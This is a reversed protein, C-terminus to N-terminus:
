KSLKESIRMGAWGYLWGFAVGAFVDTPYHMGNHLRSWMMIIVALGVFVRSKRYYYAIPLLFAMLATVHDSPFSSDTSRDGVPTVQSPYAHYPRERDWLSEALVGKILFVNMFLFIVLSVVIALVIKKGKKKDFYLIALCILVVLAYLMPKWSILESIKDVITGQGLGNFFKVVELEIM